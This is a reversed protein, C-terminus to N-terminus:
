RSFAILITFNIFTERATNVKDRNMMETFHVIITNSIANEIGRGVGHLQQQHSVLLYNPLKEVDSSSEGKHNLKDKGYRWM